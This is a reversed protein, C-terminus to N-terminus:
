PCNSYDGGPCAFGTALNEQSMGAVEFIALVVGGIGEGAIFGSAIGVSGNEYTSAGYTKWMISIIAGIATAVAQSPVPTVFGMGFASMNPLFRTYKYDLTHKLVVVIITIIAGALAAYGSSVPISSDSKDSVLVKTVAAWTAAAPASFQCFADDKATVLVCPYAKAFLWYMVVAAFIGTVSGWFQGYFQSRPSARLVHGTKLDSVMDVTQAACSMSLVGSILNATRGQQVTDFKFAAFVFQSCKGISGMPNIDIDGASQTGIFAFIFGLIIALISHEPGINFYFRLVLISFVTSCALGVVWMWTPVQDKQAVPDESDEDFDLAKKPVPLVKALTNWLLYVGNRLGTFITKYQFALEAFTYTVLIAVGPWILWFQVSNLGDTRDTPFGFPGPIKTKGLVPTNAVIGETYYYILPGLLGYAIFEGALFSMGNNFGALMGSGVFAGTLQLHWRWKFSVDMLPQYNAANGIWYLPHLDWLFPVFYTIIRFSLMSAFGGIIWKGKSIASQGAEPDAHLTRITEAAATPTPFVLQRQIIFYKRLPVGFFMGHFAAAITWMFLIGWSHDIDPMLDLQYMAPIGSQFGASMSGCATAVSSLTANERVGFEGGGLWSPLVKSLPKMIVFGMISGLLTSSFTNGSKLGLYMNSAVVVTGLISGLVVSRWRFQPLGDDEFSNADYGPAKIQYLEDSPAQTQKEDKFDSNFEKTNYDAM